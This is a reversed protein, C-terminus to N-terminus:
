RQSSALRALGLYNVNYFWVIGAKIGAKKM